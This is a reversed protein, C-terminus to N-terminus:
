DRTIYTCDLNTEFSENIVRFKAHLSQLTKIPVLQILFRSDKKCLQKIIGLKRKPGLFFFVLCFLFLFVIPIEPSEQMNFALFANSIM